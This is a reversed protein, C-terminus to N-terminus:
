KDWNRNYWYMKVESYPFGEIFSLVGQGLMDKIRLNWQIIETCGTFEASGLLWAIQVRGISAPCM